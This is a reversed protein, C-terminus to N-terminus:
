AIEKNNKKELSPIFGLEEITEVLTFSSENNESCKINNTDSDKLNIIKNMNSNNKEKFLFQKISKGQIDIFNFNLLYLSLMMGILVPIINHIFIFSLILILSLFEIKQKANM